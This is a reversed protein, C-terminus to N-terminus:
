FGKSIKGMGRSRYKIATNMRINVAQWCRVVSKGVAVMIPTDVGVFMNVAVEFGGGEAVAVANGELVGTNVAVGVVVGVTVEIGV